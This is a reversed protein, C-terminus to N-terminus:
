LKMYFGFVSLQKVNHTRGDEGHQRYGSSKIFFVIFSFMDVGNVFFFIFYNFTLRDSKAM